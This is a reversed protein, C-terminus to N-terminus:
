NVVCKRSLKGNININGGLIANNKVMRYCPTDHYCIKFKFKRRKWKKKHRLFRNSRCLTKGHYKNM